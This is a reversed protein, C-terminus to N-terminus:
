DVPTHTIRHKEALKRLLGRLAAREDPDLAEFFHKDNKDAIATLAPLLRQGAATLSLRQIRNDHPSTTRLVLKRAELKDLNKSVAGRTMGMAAAIKAPIPERQSAIHNIVVWEAVSMQHVLLAHGFAGSVENSILRLWYGLHVELPSEGKASRSRAKSAPNTITEMSVM